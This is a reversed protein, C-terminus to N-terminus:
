LTQNEELTDRLANIREEIRREEPTENRALEVGSTIRKMSQELASEHRNQNDLANLSGLGPEVSMGMGATVTELEEDTLESLKKDLDEVETRLVNLEEKTKM